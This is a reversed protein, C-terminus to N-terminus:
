SENDGEFNIKLGRRKLEEYVEKPVKPCELAKMAKERSILGFRVMSSIRDFEFSFGYKKYFRELAVGLVLCNTTYGGLNPKKWPLKKLINYREEETLRYPALLRVMKIGEKMERIATTGFPLEHGTIIVDIDMLKAVRWVERINWESCKRCPSEGKNITEEFLKTYDRHLVIWDVGMHRTVNYCNEIAEKALYKNDVTVCLPSLRFKEKVLYLAVVSDKGGSLAVICHYRKNTRKKSLFEEVEEKMKEFDRPYKLSIICENCLKKGEYEYIKRTKSTHLCMECKVEEM